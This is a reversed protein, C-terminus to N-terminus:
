SRAARLLYVFFLLWLPLAGLLLLGGFAPHMVTALLTMGLALIGFISAGLFRKM